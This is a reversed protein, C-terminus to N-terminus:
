KWQSFRIGAKKMRQIAESLRDDAITMSARFYGEGFKGYGSGPVLLVRAKDLVQACFEESSLGTPVKGWIYFTAKPKEIKWGLSRLGEIMTDMRRAYIRNTEQTSDASGQLAEAAAIQIAKFVGSDINTKIVSLAAIAEASGVAM